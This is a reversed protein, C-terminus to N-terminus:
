RIKEFTNNKTILLAQISEGVASIAAFLTLQMDGRLKPITM